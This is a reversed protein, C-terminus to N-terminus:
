WLVSGVQIRTTTTAADDDEDDDEDDDGDDDDDDDHETSAERFIQKRTLHHGSAGLFIWVM